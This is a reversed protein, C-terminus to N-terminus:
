KQGEKSTLYANELIELIGEPPPVTLQEWLYEPDKENMPNAHFTTCVVDTVALGARKTGASTVSLFGPGVLATGDDTTVALLGSRILFFSEDRHVAGTLLTGRPIVLDRAYLGNCFHHVVPMEVQPHKLIEAELRYLPLHDPNMGPVLVVEERVKLGEETSTPSNGTRLEEAIENM